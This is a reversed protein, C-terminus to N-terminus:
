DPSGCEPEAMQEVRDVRGQRARKWEELDFAIPGGDAGTHESREVYGRHKGKTSLFFKVAWPEGEDVAEILRTEGVDLVRECEDQYVEAVTSYETIYKKATHWACGVREAIKTIIGGTGPIAAIFQDAKYHNGM